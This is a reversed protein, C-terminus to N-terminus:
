PGFDRLGSYEHLFTYFEFSSSHKMGFTSALSSLYVGEKRQMKTPDTKKTKKKQKISSFFFVGNDSKKV